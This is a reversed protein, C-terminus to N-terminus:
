VAVEHLELMALPPAPAPLDGRDVAREIARRRIRELESRLSSPVGPGAARSGSDPRSRRSRSRRTGARSPDTARPALVLRVAFAADVLVLVLQERLHRIGDHHELASEREIVQPLPRKGRRIAVDRPLVIRTRRCSSAVVTRPGPLDLMRQRHFPRADSRSALADCTRSPSAPARADRTSSPTTFRAVCLARAGHTTAPQVHPPRHSTDDDGDFRHRARTASSAPARQTPRAFRRPQAPRSTAAREIADHAECKWRCKRDHAIRGAARAITRVCADLESCRCAGRRHRRNQRRIAALGRHAAGCRAAAARRGVVASGRRRSRRRPARHAM